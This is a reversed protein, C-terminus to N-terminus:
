SHEAPVRTLFDTPDRGAVDDPTAAAGATDLRRRLDAVAVDDRMRPGASPAFRRAMAEVRGHAADIVQQDLQGGEVAQVVADIARRILGPHHCILLLDVGAGIARVAVEEIEYHDAIAKMELDDSIVVGDFGLEGRLLDSVVERSMTAPVDPALQDFVIHATMISVIDGAIAARFPPLEVRDLRQRHHPLHPLDHHSDQHTDGHGPFHKGCAAVGVDQLGQALAAGLEGVRQPDRGFSRDGIVPNDPNTDVDLVPAFNLNIGLEALERGVVRGLDRALAATAFRGFAAMSPAVFFGDRLRAVRGGEQDIGILAAAGRAGHIQGCLSRTQDITDINKAFLVVGRLGRELLDRVEASLQPGHWGGLFLGAVQRRLADSERRGAPPPSGDSPSASAPSM